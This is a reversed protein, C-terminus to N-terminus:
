MDSVCYLLFSPKEHSFYLIIISFKKMSEFSGKWALLYADELYLRSTSPGYILWKFSFIFANHLEYFIYPIKKKCLSLYRMQIPDFRYNVKKALPLGKFMHCYTMIFIFYSSM